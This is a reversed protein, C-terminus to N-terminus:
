GAGLRAVRQMPALQRQARQQQVQRDILGRVVGRVQRDMGDQGLVSTQALDNFDTKGQMRALAAM